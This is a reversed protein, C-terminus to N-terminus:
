AIQTKGTWLLLCLTKDLFESYSLLSKDNRSIWAMSGRQRAVSEGEKKVRQYM